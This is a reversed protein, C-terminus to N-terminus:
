VTSWFDGYGTLCPEDTAVRRWLRWLVNDWAEQFGEARDAGGHPFDHIILVRTTEPTVPELAFKVRSVEGGLRKPHKWALTLLQQHFMQLVEGGDELKGGLTLKYESGVSMHIEAEECFFSTVGEQTTLIDWVVARADDVVVQSRVEAPVGSPM